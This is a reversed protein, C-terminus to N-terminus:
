YKNPEEVQSIYVSNYNFLKITFHRNKYFGKNNWFICIYKEYNQRM